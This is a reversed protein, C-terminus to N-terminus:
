QNNVNQVREEFTAILDYTCNSLFIGYTTIKVTGYMKVLDGSEAVLRQSDNTIIVEIARNPYNDVITWYEFLSVKPEDMWDFDSSKLAYDILYTTTNQKYINGIVKVKANNYKDPSHKIAYRLDEISEFYYEYEVNNPDDELIDEDWKEEKVSTEENEHIDNEDIDNEDIDKTKACSTALVISTLCLAICIFKILHKM